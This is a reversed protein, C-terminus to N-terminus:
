EYEEWCLGTKLEDIAAQVTTATMGSTQNNYSVDAAAGTVAVEELVIDTGTDNSIVGDAETVGTKITVVNNAVSAITASGDLATIKGDVYTKVDSAEALGMHTSDATSVAQVTLGVASDLTVNNNADTTATVKVAAYDSQTVSKAAETSSAGVSQVATGVKADIYSKIHTIAADTLVGENGQAVSLDAPTNGSKPTYTVTALDVEVGVTQSNDSDKSGVTTTVYTGDTGKSISQLASNAKTIADKLTAASVTYNASDVSSTTTVEKNGNGFVIYDDALTDGATVMTDTEKEIITCNTNDLAVTSASKNGKYVIMDGAEVSTSGISFAGSALYIDGPRIDNTSTNLTATASSIDGNYRMGGVLNEINTALETLADEVNTATIKSQADVISVDAAAGTVAVEELVIDTGTDNSIVGDAETVGTKITVVNNSVSAITASGDLTEVVNHVFETTAVNTTDDATQQTTATIVGANDVALGAGAITGIATKVTDQTALKNTTANYTGDIKVDVTNTGADVKGDVEKISKVKFATEGSTTTTDIEAQAYETVDLANIADSVTSQTAIKNTSANYTGEVAINAIKNSVITADNIKVDDVKGADAFAADLDILAEKVSKDNKIINLTAASLDLSMDQELGVSNAVATFAEQTVQENAIVENALQAVKKDLKEVDATVADGAKIENANVVTTWTSSLHETDYVAESDAAMTTNNHIAADLAKDANVLNKDPNGATGLESLYNTGSYDLQQEDGTKGTQSTGMLTYMKEFVKFTSSASAVDSFDLTQTTATGANDYHTLTLVNNNFTVDNAGKIVLQAQAATAGGIWLERADVIYIVAGQTAKAAAIKDASTSSSSFKYFKISQNTM